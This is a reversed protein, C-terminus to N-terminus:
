SVAYEELRRYLTRLPMGLSRSAERVTGFRRVASLIAYREIEPLTRMGEGSVRRRGEVLAETLAHMLLLSGQAKDVWRWAGAAMARSQSSHRGDASFVMVPTNPYLEDLTIVLDRADGGELNWDVVAVDPSRGRLLELPTNKAADDGPVGDCAVVRMAERRLTRAVMRRVREDDELLLVLPWSDKESDNM